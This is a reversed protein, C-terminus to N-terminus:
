FKLAVGLNLVAIVYGLEAFAAMSEGLYYRGGLYWAWTFGGGAAGHDVSGTYKTSVVNYGLMLGTYTDFKDIFQYHLGGRAGLIFNTSKWSWDDGPASYKASAFGLLGGIGLSSNEDFLNDKVCNEYTLSIAPTRSFGSGYGGSYLNGGLGIGLAVVQDQHQFTQEQASVNTSVSTLFLCFVTYTIVLKKM